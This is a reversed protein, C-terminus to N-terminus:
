APSNKSGFKGVCYKTQFEEFDQRPLNEERNIKIACSM